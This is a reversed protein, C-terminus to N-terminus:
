RLCRDFFSLLDLHAIRKGVQMDMGLKRHQIARRSKVLQYGRCYGIALGRQPHGIVAIHVSSEIKISLTFLLANLWNNASLCVHSMLMARLSWGPPASDIIRTSLGLRAALHVVVERQKCFVVNSVLIQNLQRTTRKQLAVVVLWADIPLQEVLMVFAQDCRATAQASV